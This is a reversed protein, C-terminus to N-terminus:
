RPASLMPPNIATDPLPANRPDIPKSLTARSCRKFNMLPFTIAMAKPTKRIDHDCLKKSVAQAMPAMAM